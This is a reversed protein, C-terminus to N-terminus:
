RLFYDYALKIILATVMLIYITRILTSGKKLAVKTGIYNGAANCVAVPIAVEYRVEKQVIFYVLAGVNTICNFIKTHLAAHLFDFKLFVIFVFMLLSGAGPGFFGDYFGIVAACLPLLWATRRKSVLERQDVLGSHRNFLTHILMLILFVVVVPAIKEKDFLSIMRAGCLSAICAVFLSPLILKWEAKVKKLYQITSTLTGSFGAFKNSGFLSATSFGPMFIFYAPLQILGGGGAIADIFGAVLAFLCLLIIDTMSCIYNTRLKTRKLLAEFSLLKYNASLLIELKV